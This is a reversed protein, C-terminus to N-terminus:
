KVATIKYHSPTLSSSRIRSFGARELLERVAKITLREEMPPGKEERRRKWDLILLTGGKKLIRKLEKLFRPKSETEHLVYALLIFDVTSTDVPISNEGSRLVRVNGPPRRKRLERLMEKQTDVAYVVGSSGVV